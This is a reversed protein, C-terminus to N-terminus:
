GEKNLTVVLNKIATRAHAVSPYIGWILFKKHGIRSYVKVGENTVAHLISHGECDEATGDLKIKWM